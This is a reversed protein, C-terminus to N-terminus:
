PGHVTAQFKLTDRCMSTALFLQDHAQRQVLCRAHGVPLFSVFGQQPFTLHFARTMGMDRTSIFPVIDCPTIHWALPSLDRWSIHETFPINWRCQCILSLKCKVYM